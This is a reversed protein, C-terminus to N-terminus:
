CMLLSIQTQLRLVNMYEQTDTTEACESSHTQLKLVNVGTDTREACESRHTQLRLM